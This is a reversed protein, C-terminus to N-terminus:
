RPVRDIEMSDGAAPLAVMFVADPAIAVAGGPVSVGLPSCALRRGNGHGDIAWLSSAFGETFLQDVVAIWGGSGDSTIGDVTARTPSGNWFSRVPGGDAPVLVVSSLVDTAAAGPRPISWFAGLQDVGVFVAKSTALDPNTALMRGGSGDLPAAYTSGGDLAVLAADGAVGMGRLFGDVAGIQVPSGGSRPARWVSITAYGGADPSETWVFDTATLAHFRAWGADPRQAGADLLLTPDGGTLAAGYFQNEREGATYIIHDGEVWLDAARYALGFASPPFSAVNTSAGGTAPRSSIGMWEDDSYLVGDAYTLKVWDTLAPAFTQWDGTCASLSQTPMPGNSGCASLAAGASIVSALVLAHLRPRTTRVLPVLRAASPMIATKM